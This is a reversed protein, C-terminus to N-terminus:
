SDASTGRCSALPVLVPVTGFEPGDQLAHLAAWRSAVLISSPISPADPLSADLPARCRGPLRVRIIVGSAVGLTPMPALQRRFNLRPWSKSPPQWSRSL